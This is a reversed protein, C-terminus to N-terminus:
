DKRPLFARKYFKEPIIRLGPYSFRFNAMEKKDMEVLKAGNEHISDVVKVKLATTKESASKRVSLSVAANTMTHGSLNVLFEEVEPNSENTTQMQTAPLLIFRNTSAQSKKM